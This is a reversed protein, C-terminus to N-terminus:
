TVEALHRQCCGLLGRNRPIVNGTHGGGPTQVRHLNYPPCLGGELVRNRTNFPLVFSMKKQKSGAAYKRRLLRISFCLEEPFALRNRTCNRGLGEWGLWISKRDLEWRKSAMLNPLIKAHPESIQFETPHSTQGSEAQRDLTVTQPKISACPLKPKIHEEPLQAQNCRM